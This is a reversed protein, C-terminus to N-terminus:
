EAIAREAERRVRWPQWLHRREHAAIVTRRTALNFRVGAIVPASLARRRSQRGSCRM